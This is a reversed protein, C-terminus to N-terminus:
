CCEPACSLAGDEAPAADGTAALTQSRTTKATALETQRCLACRAAHQRRASAELSERERNWKQMMLIGCNM